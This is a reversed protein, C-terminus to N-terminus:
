NALEVLALSRGGGGTMAFQRTQNGSSSSRWRIEFPHSGAGLGTVLHTLSVPEETAKTHLRIRFREVNDVFLGIDAYASVDSNSVTATFVVLVDGGSTTPTISMDPITVYTTSNTSVDTTGAAAQNLVVGTPGTPGTPGAPGTAGTPGTPGTPGMPGTPGTPGAPGTAGTPGTPGTPGMPGTPGTPGAPGTAGTPGIPGTPGPERGVEYTVVLQPPPATSEQSGFKMKPGSTGRLAVGHNDAPSLIWGQALTTVDWEIYDRFGSGDIAVTDEAAGAMAPASPGNATDEDWHELVAYAATSGPTTMGAPALCFLRLSASRLVATSPIDSLDFRLLATLGTSVQLSTASGKPKSGTRDAKVSTDDAPTFVSVVLEEAAAPYTDISLAAALAV